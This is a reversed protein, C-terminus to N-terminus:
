EADGAPAGADVYTALLEVLKERQIPKTAYDDCGAELCKSRDSTMAHATLAVIPHQYGNARLTRTADYGDLVPMQMDMLIVDFPESRALANTAESVALQGNDVVTVEAGSKRLLLSILRQNDTGDEALLVRCTPGEKGFPQRQAELNASSSEEPKSTSRRTCRPVDQTTVSPAETESTETETSVEYPLSLTFTTGVGLESVVEIDGGLAQAIQRSISLGLGTGGFRRTMSGDAQVFPLFIKELQNDAIGIGSDVVDICLSPTNSSSSSVRAVIEISGETTFKIANEVINSLIQKLRKPDSYIAAPLDGEFREQLHLGKKAARLRMMSAVEAVVVSPDVSRPSLELMGTEVKSLDLIDNILELLYRGNRHITQAADRSEPCESNDVILESFGLIATMPTRLEHSMNALFESKAKNADEASEKATILAREARKQDTLDRVIGTFLTTSPGHEHPQVTVESVALQMAFTSGDKRQGVVERGIGIIKRSGTALYKALYQDHAERYPSPMLMNVNKGITESKHYGFMKEAARNFEEIIGRESITIVADIMESLIAEKRRIQNMTERRSFESESAVASGPEGIGGPGALGYEPPSTPSGESQPRKITGPLGFHTNTKGQEAFNAGSREAEVPMRLCAVSNIIRLILYTTGFCWGFCLGVGLLQIGFQEWRSTGDGFAALPAFVAVALTGWAGAFGHVPIAGVVDDIKVRELLLTALLMVLSASFGILAASSYTVLHCSATVGVLGALVGNLLSSASVHRRAVWSWLAASLGGCTGALMTNMVISPVRADFGLTGGANFGIWGFWIVFVGVAVMPTNSGAFGGQDRRKEFRGLRPGILILVALASWAGVSHVVTSGAFDIFGLKALWGAPENAGTGNWAWHGFLPYILAGVLVAMVVYAFFNLREAVASSAITIATGCLVLQFLFISTPFRDPTSDEFLFGSWGFLGGVSVGHILAYGFFWFLCGGICFIVVNKKAVSISSKARSMGSELCCFGAQMLFVMATCLLIWMSNIVVTQDM